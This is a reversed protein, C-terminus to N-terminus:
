RMPLDLVIRTGQRLVSGITLRAGLKKARTRMNSLGMGKRSRGPPFGTGDDTIELRLKNRHRHFTVTRRRANAHRLSNSIAEKAIGIVDRCHDLPLAVAAAADITVAIDGAGTATFSGVLSRLAQEFNGDTRSSTQMRPIFSRVEHIVGNLQAVSGELRKAASRSIPKLREKTAELGMGVAYLSQLVDDHLDQSIRERENMAQKRQTIDEVVALLLPGVHGPLEISSTKVAVWIIDGPKRVYRKEYVYGPREGRFLEDTLALNEPLDDPHTYLAYTSGIIEAETYGTLACFAKNASLLRRQADMIVLGVPADAVFRHLRAESQQLAEEAQKRESIDEVVKIFYAPAGSTSRVLSVTLNAWLWVGDSRLYRKEISFSPRTSTILEQMLRVNDELDDPHTIEQFTLACFTKSSYGLTQCLRANVRLFQGNLGLQAIGVGAHEFLTKWRAESDRLAAEARKQETIDRAFAFNYEKGEFTAYNAVVEVPYLEGSKTRHLTEFRLQGTLRLAEWNRPWSETQYNPDVDGVTMSLLEHRTYGLRQCAADNVYAFRADRDIWFVLDAARDVAFQTLRLAEEAQKRETIDVAVGGVLIPSGQENPIPFKSVLSAHIGDVQPATEVTLIPTNMALVQRDNAAFQSAVAEPWVDFDTKGKWESLKVDFARQFAGNLYVYRGATDKIWALGPLNEMFSAFLRESKGQEAELRRQQTIDRSVGVLGIVNGHSDQHPTKISSFTRREGNFPIVAEFQHQTAGKVVRQDNEMLQKATERSFLEQDTKGLIEEVPRGIVRAGAANILQYRGDTDKMFIADTATDIVARLLSEQRKLARESEQRDLEQGIWQAILLLFDKDADTLRTPYPTPAVFCITGHVSNLGILKAGIYCEIGLSACGPHERWESSLAQGFCVPGETALTAQCYTQGVRVITGVAFSTEAPASVHAIVLEEGRVRTMIGIPLKFRSCGLELMTQIRQDFTLTPHSIAEQLARIAQESERLSAEVQKRATIDAIFGITDTVEGRQNKLVTAWLSLDVPTGDKRVRRFEVGSLAGSTILEDWIHGSATHQSPPLFPTPRGSTEEAHWGFMTEAAPNWPTVTEGGNDLSMVALPCAHILAQLKQATTQLEEEAVKRSTIDECVVLITLSGAADRITRATERVWLRSGDKRVKQLEWGMTHNPAHGCITLQRLVAHHDTPDFIRLVSQGVLEEPTYGLQEAGYRNLSLITGDLSLVFAMAPTDEYLTQFHVQRERVAADATRQDALTRELEAIRRRLAIVDDSTQPSSDIPTDM